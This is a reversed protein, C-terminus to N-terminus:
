SGTQLRASTSRCLIGDMREPELPVGLPPRLDAGHPNAQRLVASPRPGARRPPDLSSPPRLTRTDGTSEIGIEIDMEIRWGATVTERRCGWGRFDRTRRQRKLGSPAGDRLGPCRGPHRTYGLNEAGFPRWVQGRPAWPSDTHRGQLAGDRKPNWEWPPARPQPIAASEASRPTQCERCTGGATEGLLLPAREARRVRLRDFCFGSRLQSAGRRSFGPASAPPSVLIM